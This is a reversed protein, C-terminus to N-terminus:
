EIIAEYVVINEPTTSSEGEWGRYYRFTIKSTGPALGQFDWLFTSGAGILTSDRVSTESVLRVVDPDEITCHWQYGTTPNGKLIVRFPDGVKVRIIGQEDDSNKGLLLHKLMGQLDAYDITFEQIGAAYPMIEYQQFFVVLGQNTLYYGQDPRIKTFPEFLADTLGRAEIQRKVEKSIANIYDADPLFQEALSIQKGTALDFTYGSQITSGHAGGAFQYDLFVLSLLGNQNYKIHYDFWTQVRASPGQMEPFQILVPALDLANQEGTKKAQAALGQFFQNLQEQVAQDALGQIQPYQLDTKLAKTESSERSTRIKMTNETVPFLIAEKSGPVQEFRLQLEEAFFQAPLYLRNEKMLPSSIYYAHGDANVRSDALNVSITGEPTTVTATRDPQSWAVQYGLGEAIARLPLYLGDEQEVATVTLGKTVTLGQGYVAEPTAPLFALILALVLSLILISLARVSHHIAPNAATKM